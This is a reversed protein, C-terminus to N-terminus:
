CNEKEKEKKPKIKTGMEPTAAINDNIAYRGALESWFTTDNIKGVQVVGSKVKLM